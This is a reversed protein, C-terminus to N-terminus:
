FNRFVSTSVTLVQADNFNIESDEIAYVVAIVPMWNKWGFFRPFFVQSSLSFRNADNTEGFIPNEEDGSLYAYGINSVWRLKRATYTYALGVGLGTQAMAAGDLDRDIYTVSPRFSHRDGGFQLMYGLEVNIVDGERVLLQRQAATLGQTAGSIEDNIERNRYTAKIEFESGFIKDWSIRGGSSSLDTETRPQGVLYPDSWVQTDLDSSILYAFQMRGLFAFDHQIALKLDREFQMIDGRDSGIVFQTKHNDLTYAYQIGVVPMAYAEVDATDLGDITDDSFDISLDSIGALFNSEAAGGGAGFNLFGSWELSSSIKDLATVPLALGYMMVAVAVKKM